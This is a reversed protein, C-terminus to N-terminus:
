GVLFSIEKKPEEETTDGCQSCTGVIYPESVKGNKYFYKYESFCRYFIEESHEKGENMLQNLGKLRDRLVAGIKEPGKHRTPSLGEMFKEMAFNIKEEKLEEKKLEEKKLEEKLEEEKQLLLGSSDKKQSEIKNDTTVTKLTQDSNSVKQVSRRFNDMKPLNRSSKKNLSFSIDM